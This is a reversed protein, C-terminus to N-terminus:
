EEPSFYAFPVHTMEDHSLLTPRACDCRCRNSHLLSCDAIISVFFPPTLLATWNSPLRITLLLLVPLLTVASFASVIMLTDGGWGGGHCEKRARTAPSQCSEARRQRCSDHPAAFLFSRAFNRRHCPLPSHIEQQQQRGSTSHFSQDILVPYPLWRSCYCAAVAALSLSVTLGILALGM